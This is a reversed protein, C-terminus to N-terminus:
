KSSTIGSDAPAAMALSTPLVARAATALWTLAAMGAPATLCAALPAPKGPELSTLAPGAGDAMALSIGPADPRVVLVGM